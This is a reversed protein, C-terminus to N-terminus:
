TAPRARNRLLSSPPPAATVRAPASALPILSASAKWKGSTQVQVSASLRAARTFRSALNPRPLCKKWHRPRFCLPSALSAPAQALAPLFPAPVSVTHVIKRAAPDVQDAPPPQARLILVDKAAKAVRSRDTPSAPVY